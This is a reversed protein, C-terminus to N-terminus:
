LLVFEGDQMFLILGSLPGASRLAHIFVHVFM